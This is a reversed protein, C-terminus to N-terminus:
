QVQLQKINIKMGNPMIMDGPQQDPQCPGAWKGEILMLNESTGMLPPSYKTHIEGRYTHDFDGSVVTHSTATTEGIKCVSDGVIRNGERRIQQKSCAQRSFSEGMQLAIDDTSQDICMQFTQPPRKASARSIKVDWLGSKRKPLDLALAEAALAAVATLLVIPALQKTM